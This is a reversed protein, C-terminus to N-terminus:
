CHDPLSLHSPSGDRYSGEAPQGLLILTGSWQDKRKAMVKAVGILWTVHADHGCAHTIYSKIGDLTTGNKASAYPLGSEEKLPLADMDARFMVVPGPGNMMLGVVGTKNIGTHVEFGHEQFEKAITAATEVEQMSLEPNAHLRKFLEILRTEDGAVQKSLDINQAIALSSLSISVVICIAIRM